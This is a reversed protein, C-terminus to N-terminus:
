KVQLIFSGDKRCLPCYFVLSCMAMISFGTVVVIVFFRTVIVTSLFIHDLRTLTLRRFPLWIALFWIISCLFSFMM